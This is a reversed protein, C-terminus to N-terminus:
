YERRQNWDDREDKNDTNTIVDWLALILAFPLICAVMFLAMIRRLKTM